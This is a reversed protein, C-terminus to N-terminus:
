SKERPLCKEQSIGDRVLGRVAGQCVGKAVWIETPFHQKKSKEVFDASKASFDV